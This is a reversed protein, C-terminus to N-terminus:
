IEIQVNSTVRSSIRTGAPIEAEEGSIFLAPLCLFIGSMIAIMQRDDGRAFHNGTLQVNTGDVAVVSRINLELVGEQGFFSSSDARSFTGVVSSGEEIVVIGDVTIDSVVRLNIEEGEAIDKSSYSSVTEVYVETGSRLTVQEAGSLRGPFIGFILLSLILFYVIKKSFYNSFRM